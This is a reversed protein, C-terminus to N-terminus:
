DNNTLSLQAGAQEYLYKPLDKISMIQIYFQKAKLYENRSLYYDGVLLLAHPKWLTEKSLLPKIEELLESEAAYNSNFLAKKYILLNKMELEYENNDLLHNFLVSLEKYDAILNENLILFFSLASYSPDNSFIINKLIKLAENKKQNELYIQAQVYNESLLIKKNEKKQMYLSLSIFFITVVFLTVYVLIKNSEYFNRIKSKKTINYQAEFSDEPM